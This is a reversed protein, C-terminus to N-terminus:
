SFSCRSPGRALRPLLVVSPSRVVVVVVISSSSRRRRDVFPPPRFVVVVMSSRPRRVVSLSSWLRLRDVVRIPSASPSRREVVVVISSLLDVPSLSRQFMIGFDTM